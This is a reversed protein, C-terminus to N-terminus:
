GFKVEDFLSARIQMIAVIQLIFEQLIVANTLVHSLSAEAVVEEEEQVVESQDIESDDVVSDDAVESEDLTSDDLVESDDPVESDDVNAPVEDPKRQQSRNRSIERSAAQSSHQEPAAEFMESFVEVTVVQGKTIFRVRRKLTEDQAVADIAGTVDVMLTQPPRANKSAPSMGRSTPTPSNLLTRRDIRSSRSPSSQASQQSVSLAEKRGRPSQTRSPTSQELVHRPIQPTWSNPQLEVQHPAPMNAMAESIEDHVRFAQKRNTIHSDLDPVHARLRDLQTSLGQLTLMISPSYSPTWHPERRAKYINRVSEDDLEPIPDYPSEDAFGYRVPEVAIWGELQLQCCSALTVVTETLALNAEVNNTFFTRLLRLLRDLLADEPALLHPQTPRIGVLDSTRGNQKLQSTLRRNSCPHIELLTQMDTLHLAYSEDMGNDGAIASALELYVGMEANLAGVTRQPERPRIEIVQLLTGMAYDHNKHLLVSILRMVAIVTQTNHSEASSLVLDVLNFLSPNLRDDDESSITLLMLSNRKGQALSSRGPIPAMSDPLALLYHLIM